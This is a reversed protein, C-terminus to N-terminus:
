ADWLVSILYANLSMGRKKAEQKIIEYLKEPLRITTQVM